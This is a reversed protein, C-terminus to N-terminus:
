TGMAFRYMPDADDQIAEGAPNGLQPVMTDGAIKEIVGFLSVPDNEVARVFNDKDVRFGLKALADATQEARTRFAVKQDAAEKSLRAALDSALKKESELVPIRGLEKELEATKLLLESSGQILDQATQNDLPM